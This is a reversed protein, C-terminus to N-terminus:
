TDSEDQYFYVGIRVRAKGGDREASSEESQSVMNRLLQMGETKLQEHLKAATHPAVDDDFMAREFFREGSSASINHIAASLHDGVNAALFAISEKSNAEPLYAMTALRFNGDELDEVLGAAILGELVSKARVEPGIEEVLQAFSPGDNRKAM